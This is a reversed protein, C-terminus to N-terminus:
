PFKCIMKTPIYESNMTSLKMLVNEHLNKSNPWMGEVRGKEKRQREGTLQKIKKLSKKMQQMDTHKYPHTHTHSGCIFSFVLNIKRLRSLMIVQIAYHDGTVDIKQCIACM